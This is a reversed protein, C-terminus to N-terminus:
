TKGMRIEKKKRETLVALSNKKRIIWSFKEYKKCIITKMVGLLLFKEEEKRIKWLLWVFFSIEDVNKKKHTWCWTYLQTNKKTNKKFICLATM